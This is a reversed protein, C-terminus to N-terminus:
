ILAHAPKGTKIGLLRQVGVRILCACMCVYLKAIAPQRVPVCRHPIPDNLAFSSLTDFLSSSHFLHLSVRLYSSASLLVVCKAEARHQRLAFICHM